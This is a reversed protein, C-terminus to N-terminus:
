MNCTVWCASGGFLSHQPWRMVDKHPLRFSSRLDAVGDIQGHITVASCFTVESHLFSRFWSTLNDGGCHNCYEQSRLAGWRLPRISTAFSPLDDASSNPPCRQPFNSSRCGRHNARSSANSCEGNLLRRRVSMSVLTSSMFIMSVM